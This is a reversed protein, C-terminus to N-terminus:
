GELSADAMPFISFFLFCCRFKLYLIFFNYGLICPTCGHVVITDRHKVVPLFFSVREREDEPTGDDGMPVRKEKEEKPDGDGVTAAEGTRLLAAGALEGARM